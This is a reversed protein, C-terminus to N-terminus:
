ENYIEKKLISYIKNPDSTISKHLVANHILKPLINYLKNSLQSSSYSYVKKIEKAIFDLRDRPNKIEDYSEDFLEPFTEYGFSKLKSLSGATSVLIFPQMMIIPKFTKETFFITDEEFHSETVINIYSGTHVLNNIGSSPGSNDFTIDYILPLSDIFGKDWKVEAGHLVNPTDEGNDLMSFIVDGNKSIDYLSQLLYLRFNKDRRNLCSLKILREKKEAIGVVIENFREISLPENTMDFLSYTFGHCSIKYNRKIDGTMYFVSSMDITYKSCLSTIFQDISRLERGEGIGEICYDFLIVCRKKYIDNLVNEPITTNKTACVINSNTLQNGTLPILYIYRMDTPIHDTDTLIITDRWYRGMSNFVNMGNSVISNVNNNYGIYLCDKENSM